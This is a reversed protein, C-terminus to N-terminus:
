RRGTDKLCLDILDLLSKHPFPKQLTHEAGLRKAMELYDFRGTRGGGSMMITKMGPHKQRAEILTGIGEKEPMIVDLVAIDFAQKEMLRLAETGSGAVAVHHGARELTTRLVQRVMHDDDAVLINAM